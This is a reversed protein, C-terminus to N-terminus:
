KTNAEMIEDFAINIKPIMRAIWDVLAEDNDYSVGSEEGFAHILEHRVVQRFRECKGEYTEGSMLEKQRLLIKKDFTYCLGDNASLRENNMDDIVVEYETGLVEVNM